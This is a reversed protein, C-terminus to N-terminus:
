DYDDFRDDWICESRLGLMDTWSISYVSGVLAYINLLYRYIYLIKCDYFRCRLYCFLRSSIYIFLSLAVFLFYLFRSWTWFSSNCCTLSSDYACFLLAYYSFSITIVLIFARSYFTCSLQRGSSLKRSINSSLLSRLEQIM